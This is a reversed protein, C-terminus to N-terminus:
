TATPFDVERGDKLRRPKISTMAQWRRCILDCYAPSLEVGYSVRSENHAALLTSGSGMFPDFVADGEDTYARVFWQPLGVPFAAAHGTATHTGTFTPLRNGPYAWGVGVFEGHTVGQGQTEDRPRRAAAADEHSQVRKIKGVNPGGPVGQMGAMSGVNADRAKTTQRDKPIACNGSGQIKSWDRELDPDTSGDDSAPVIASESAHRVNEPRMKWEGTVFQYIPEFQNKFRRSVRKPVGVREWCFETAFHWGWERVHAIVLDFVYLDTDIENGPPKINVFWSGDSALHAQVNAAVPAFWEVYEAPRIPKFGSSEDYIRQEAYPPSTFALNITAGDLLRDIVKSDRCDGCILRHDGLMWVDGPKTVPKAPPAGVDPTPEPEPEQQARLEMAALISDIDGATFGTADLGLPTSDIAQLDPLLAEYDFGGAITAQNIAIGAAIAEDDDKSAWGTEVPALWRGDKVVVSDDPPPEGAAHARLLEDRRGHGSIIKGTRDDRVISEILGFRKFSATILASDHNKSNRDASELEDIPLYVIKHKPM